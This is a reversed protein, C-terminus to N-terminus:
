TSAAIVTIAAATASPTSISSPADTGLSGAPPVVCDTTPAAVPAAAGAAAANAIVHHRSCTNGQGQKAPCKVKSAGKKKGQPKTRAMTSNNQSIHSNNNYLSYLTLICSKIIHHHRVQFLQCWLQTFNCTVIRNSMIVTVFQLVLCFTNM